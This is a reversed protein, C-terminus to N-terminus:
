RKKAEIVAESVGDTQWIKKIDLGISDLLSTWQSESREMGSLFTLMLIDESAGALPAGVDPLVWEDILLSSESSMAEVTNGLLRRCDADDFDHCVSKFFYARAGKIKQPTFFDYGVREVGESHAPSAILTEPLDQVVCRGKIHPNKNRFSAADYGTNGGVDVLLPPEHAEQFGKVDLETAAPYIEHWPLRLGTRRAGMYGDFARKLDPDGRMMDWQHMGHTWIFPSKEGKTYDPFQTFRNQKWLSIINSAIPFACRVVLHYGDIQGPQSLWKSVTNSRYRSPGVEDFVNIATLIRMFRIILLTEAKTKEALEQASLPTEGSEVLAQLVGSEIALLTSIYDVPQKEGTLIQLRLRAVYHAPGEVAIQLRQIAKVFEGQPVSGHSAQLEALESVRKSLALLSNQGAEDM